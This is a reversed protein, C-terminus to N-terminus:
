EGWGKLFEKAAAWLFGLALLLIFGSILYTM